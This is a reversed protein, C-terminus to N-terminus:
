TKAQIIIHGVSFDSSWPYPGGCLRQLYAFENGNFFRRLGEGFFPDDFLQELIGQRVPDNKGPKYIAVDDSTTIVSNHAALYYRDLRITVM